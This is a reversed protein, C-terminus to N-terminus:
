QGPFAMLSVLLDSFVAQGQVFSFFDSGKKLFTLYLVLKAHGPGHGHGGGGMPGPGGPRRKPADTRSMDHAM